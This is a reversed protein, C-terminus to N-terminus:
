LASRSRGRRLRAAQAGLWRDRQAHGQEVRVGEEESNLGGERRSRAHRQALAEARCGEERVPLVVPHRVPVGHSLRHVVDEVREVALEAPVTEVVWNLSVPSEVPVGSGNGLGPPAKGKEALSVAM